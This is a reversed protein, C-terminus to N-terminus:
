AKFQNFNLVNCYYQIKAINQRMEFLPSHRFFTPSHGGIKERKFSLCSDKSFHKM